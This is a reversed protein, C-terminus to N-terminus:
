LSTFNLRSHPRTTMIDIGQLLWDLERPELAIVKEQLSVPWRFSDKELRKIWMAFGTNDWYLLRIVDRKKNVFAFLSSGLPDHGLQDQVMISLGNIQKRGDVPTKCLYIKPFSEINRV